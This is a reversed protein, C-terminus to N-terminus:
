EDSGPTSKQARPRSAMPMPVTVVPILRITVVNVMRAGSQRMFRSGNNAQIVITFENRMTKASGTRFAARTISNISRLQM